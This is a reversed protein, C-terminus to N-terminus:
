VSRKKLISFITSGGDEPVFAALYVGPHRKAIEDDTPRIEFEGGHCRYKVIKPLVDPWTRCAATLYQLAQVYCALEGVNGSYITAFDIGDTLASSPEIVVMDEQRQLWGMAWERIEDSTIYIRPEIWQSVKEWKFFQYSSLALVKDGLVDYLLALALQAPGSGGYGYAFGTPSHNFLAQSAKPTLSRLRQEHGYIHVDCGGDGRRSIQYQIGM